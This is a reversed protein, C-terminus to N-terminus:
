RANILRPAGTHLATFPATLRRRVPQGFGFKLPQM